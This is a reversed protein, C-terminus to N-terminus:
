VGAEGLGRGVQEAVVEAAADNALEVVIAGQGRLWEAPEGHLEENVVVIRPRFEAVARPVMRISCARVTARGSAAAQVREVLERSGRVVLLIVNSAGANDM